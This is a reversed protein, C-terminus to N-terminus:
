QPTAPGPSLYSPEEDEFPRWGLHEAMNFWADNGRMWDQARASQDPTWEWYRPFETRLQDLLRGCASGKWLMAAVNMKDHALIINTVAIVDLHRKGANLHEIVTSAMAAVAERKTLSRMYIGTEIARDSIPFNQRFWQERAPHGGSTTEINIIRGSPSSYRVFLHSPAASLAVHLGIREALILFLIPMSVCQGLRNALYNHLLKNETRRGLPDSQDYAFPRGNNWSGSDYLFRRLAGLKADPDITPGALRRATDTLRDLEDLVALGDVSADIFQDFAIKAKAYDLKADPRDLVSSILKVAESPSDTERAETSRDRSFTVHALM